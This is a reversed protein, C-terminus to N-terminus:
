WSFVRSIEVRKLQLRVHTHKKRTNPSSYLWWIMAQTSSETTSTLLVFLTDYFRYFFKFGKKLPYMNYLTDLAHWIARLALHAVASTRLARAQADNQALVHHVRSKSLKDEWQVSITITVDCLTLRRKHWSLCRSKTLGSLKSQM